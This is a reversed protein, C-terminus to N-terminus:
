REESLAFEALVLELDDRRWQQNKRLRRHGDDVLNGVFFAGSRNGLSVQLIPIGPFTLFNGCAIGITRAIRLNRLFVFFGEGLDFKERDVVNETTPGLRLLFVEAFTADEVLDVLVSRTSPRGYRFRPFQSCLPQVACYMAPTRDSWPGSGSM